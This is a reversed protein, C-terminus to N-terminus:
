SESSFHKPFHPMCPVIQYILFVEEGVRTVRLVAALLSDGNPIESSVDRGNEDVFSASISWIKPTPSLKKLLSM